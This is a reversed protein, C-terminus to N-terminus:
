GRRALEEQRVATVMLATFLQRRSTRVRGERAALRVLSLAERVRHESLAQAVKRYFGRSEEDGLERVMEEALGDRKARQEKSLWVKGVVNVHNQRDQQEDKKSPRVNTDQTGRVDTDPGMAITSLYRETEEASPDEIWLVSSRGPRLERTLLGASELALFHRRITRQDLGRAHAIRRESPFAYGKRLGTGDSWDFSDVVQYTIKEADTLMRYGFLLVNSTITFHNKARNRRRVILDADM